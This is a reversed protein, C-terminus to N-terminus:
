MGEVALNPKREDLNIDGRQNNFDFNISRLSDINNSEFIKELELKKVNLLNVKEERDKNWKIVKDVDKILTEM